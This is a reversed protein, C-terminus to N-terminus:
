EIEVIGWINLSPVEFRIRGEAGEEFKLERPEVGPEFYRVRRITPPGGLAAPNLTVSIASKEKMEDKTADYDRNLFQVVLRSAEPQVRPLAWVRGDCKVEIRGPLSGPDLDGSSRDLLIGGSEQWKSLM